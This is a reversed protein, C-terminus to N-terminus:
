VKALAKRIAALFRENQERLGVTVRLANPLGFGAMPRVIVGQHLLADVLAQAGLPPDTVLLFNTQSPLCTLGMESLRAFLFDRERQVLEQSCRHFEHDDLSAAAAVMSLAGTNFPLVTHLLYEILEPHAIGYGVRLNALGSSKSFSRVAIVNRGQRVYRLSDAYDPDTVYDCYAEDFVVVVHEPLREIFADVATQSLVLGTPNNPSCLWVIRTQATIADAMASLDLHYDPRPAVRTARGGYMTTLLAYLPFTVRDVVSGGGDFIFAQAVMRLVDTAGNGIIFHQETLGNGYYAVLKRRLEREAIGPYRNAEALANRLAALAMPSPGLPNENSCLKLVESLGLEQRVQEPCKGAVYLPVQLLQRNLM